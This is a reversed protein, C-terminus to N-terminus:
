QQVRKFEVVWVWPNENWSGAGNISEWLAEYALRPFATPCKGAKGCEVLVPSDGPLNYRYWGGAALGSKIREIGESIADAESIQQLKEVRVGTIELTIRSAWRPMHISPRWRLGEPYKETARYYAHFDGGMIDEHSARCQELTPADHAWTERVWLQDGPNYKSNEYHGSNIEGAIECPALNCGTYRDKCPKVVRRTQTKSGDLIARVM